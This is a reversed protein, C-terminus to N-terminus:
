GSQTVQGALSDDHGSGGVADAQAGCTGEYRGAGVDDQGDAIGAQPLLPGGLDAPRGLHSWQIQGVQGRHPSEGAQDVAVDVDEDVVGPATVCCRVSVTSPYSVMNPVLARPGNANVLRSSGRTRESIM